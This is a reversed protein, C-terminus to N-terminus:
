WFTSWFCDTCSGETSKLASLIMVSIWVLEISCLEDPDVGVVEWENGLLEIREFDGDLLSSVWDLLSVSELAVLVWEVDGRLVLDMVGSGGGWITERWWFWNFESGSVDTNVGIPFVWGWIFLWVEFVDSFVSWGWNFFAFDIGSFVDWSWSVVWGNLLKFDVGSFV